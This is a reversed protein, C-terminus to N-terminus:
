APSPKATAEVSDRGARRERERGVPIGNRKIM